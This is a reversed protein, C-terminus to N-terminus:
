QQSEGEPNSKRTLILLTPPAIEPNQLWARALELLQARSMTPHLRKAERYAAAKVRDLTVLPKTITLKRLAFGVSVVGIALAGVFVALGHSAYELAAFGYGTALFGTALVVLHQPSLSAIPPELWILEQASAKNTNNETM